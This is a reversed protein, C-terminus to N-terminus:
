HSSSCCQNECCFQTCSNCVNGELTKEGEGWRSMKGWRPSFLSYWHLPKYLIYTHNGFVQATKMNYSLSVSTFVDLQPPTAIVEMLTSRLCKIKTQRILSDVSILCENSWGNLGPLIHEVFVFIKETKLVSSHENWGNWETRQRLNRLIPLHNHCGVLNWDWKRHCRYFLFNHFSACRCILIERFYHPYCCWGNMFFM